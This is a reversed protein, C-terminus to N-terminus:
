ACAPRIGSVVMMDGPRELHRAELKKRAIDPTRAWVVLAALGTALMMVIITVM